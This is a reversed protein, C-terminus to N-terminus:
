RSAASTGARCSFDRSRATTSRALRRGSPSSCGGSRSVHSTTPFRFSSSSASAACSVRSRARKEHQHHPVALGRYTEIRQLLYAVEINAYRDHSDKVESRKGFLADAEDFLLVAGSREAADFLRSLNKETEGIYKSVVNALDIRYLDLRAANAIAEAALTKGTGSEGAFLAALGLGRRNRDGFGWEEYVQQRHRLQSAIDRLQAAVSPPVILDDFTTRSDIRQALADLGGRAAERMADWLPEDVEADDPADAVTALVQDLLVEDVRFQQLARDAARRIAPRLAGSTAVDQRPVDFRWVQRHSLDALQLPSLAGLIVIPSRLAAILCMANAAHTSEAELACAVGAPTLAAERDLRRALQTLDRPDGSLLSTDIWLTHLGARRFVARALSRGARRRPADSVANPLMVLPERVGGIAAAIALSLDDEAGDGSAADLTAVGALRADFAAVGTMYHLVREDIQLVAQALGSTTDFELLSWYRLPGIPSVADWHPESLLALALSFTLQMPERPSMGQAQTVAARLAADIQVGAALVMLETEFPTLGFLTRLQLAAPLFDPEEFAVAPIPDSAGSQRELRERWFAFRDSLWRQNRVSWGDITSEDITVTSATM